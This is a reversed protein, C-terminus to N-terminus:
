VFQIEWVFIHSYLGKLAFKSCICLSMGVLIKWVPLGDLNMQVLLRLVDTHFYLAALQVVNNGRSDEDRWNAGISLLFGLAETSGSTASLLLPSSRYRCFM